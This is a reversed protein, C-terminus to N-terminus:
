FNNKKDPVNKEYGSISEVIYTPRSKIEEYIRGVYEGLIGITIFVLSQSLLLIYIILINNIKIFLSTILLICSSILFIIGFFYALKLPYSSFSTIGDLGFIFMKKLSYKTKGAFRGRRNYYIAIQKYGVWSVMGRIYRNKEHLKNLSDCVKRDILKFDGTDLPIDINTINKLFRYYLKATLKKFYTENNRKLRKGYVVQYGEKWKEIMKLIVEPPDQLDADIVVIADGLAYNLGATVAAQHGFNRSFNILRINKDQKCLNELLNKSNDVSGDNVFIIEYSESTSFMVNSIQNHTETIVLEENLLPVIISYKIKM